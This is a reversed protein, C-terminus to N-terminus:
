MQSPDLSLPKLDPDTLALSKIAAPEGSAISKALWTRALGFHGLQCEYCALNYSVLWHDPFLGAAETLYRCAEETRKLEHLAFSRHIWSQVQEPASRVLEHGLDICDLWLQKQACIRWRLEMVDPHKSFKPDLMGLELEAEPCNGLELWGEAARLQHLAPPEIKM